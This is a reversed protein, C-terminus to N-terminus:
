NRKKRSSVSKKSSVTSKNKTHANKSNTTRKQGAELVSKSGSVSTKCLKKKPPQNGGNIKKRKQPAETAAETATVAASCLQKNPRENCDSVKKCKQGSPPQKSKKTDAQFTSKSTTVEDEDDSNDSESNDCESDVDDKKIGQAAELLMAIKVVERDLPNDRYYKRHVLEAHGMFKAVEAVMDDKLEMAQCKSAFHKRLNTGRLTSPDEAGCKVSCSTLVKCANVVKIRNEDNPSSPLAFLYKNKPSVGATKRHNLLLEICCVVDARLLVNLNSHGRKGRVKMRCFRKAVKKGEESLAGFLNENTKEDITERKNFDKETANQSEGVRRRNFVIISAITM